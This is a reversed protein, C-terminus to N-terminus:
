VSEISEHLLWHECAPTKLKIDSAECSSRYAIEHMCKYYRKSSTGHRESYFCTGCTEGHPGIGPTGAYGIGLKKRPPDGFLDANVM